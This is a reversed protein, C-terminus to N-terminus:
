GREVPPICLPNEGERMAQCYGRCMKSLIVADDADLGIAASYPAIIDWDTPAFGEGKPRTPGLDLMCGALYEMPDLEPLDFAVGANRYEDM